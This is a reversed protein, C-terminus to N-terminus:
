STIQLFFSKTAVQGVGGMTLDNLAVTCILVSGPGYGEQAGLRELNFIATLKQTNGVDVNEPPNTITPKEDKEDGTDSVCQTISLSAHISSTATNYVDVEMRGSSGQKLILENPFAIPAVATATLGPTPIDPISIANFIMYTVGLGLGLMAFALVVVVIANMSLSLSGKKSNIKTLM